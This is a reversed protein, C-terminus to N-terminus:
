GYAGEPHQHKERRIQGRGSRDIRQDRVRRKAVCAAPGVRRAIHQTGQKQAHKRSMVAVHVERRSSPKLAITLSHNRADRGAACRRSRLGPSIAGGGGVFGTVRKQIGLPHEVDVGRDLGDVSPLFARGRGYVGVLGATGAVGIMGVPDSRIAQAKIDLNMGAILGGSTVAKISQPRQDLAQQGHSSVM